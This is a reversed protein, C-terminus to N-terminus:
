GQLATPVICPPHVTTASRVRAVAYLPTPLQPQSPEKRDRYLWRVPTAKFVLCSTRESNGRKSGKASIGTILSTNCRPLWPESAIRSNPACGLLELPRGGSSSSIGGARKATLVPFGGKGHAVQGKASCCTGAPHSIRIAAGGLGEGM